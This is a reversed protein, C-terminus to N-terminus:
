VHAANASGGFAAVAEATTTHFPVITDVGTMRLTQDVVGTAGSLRLQGGNQKLKGSCMVLIGIGTSDIFDVDALDFIVRASNNRILEATKWEIQQSNRGITIRGTFSLLVINPELYSEEIELSM